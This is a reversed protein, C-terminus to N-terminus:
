DQLFRATVTLDTTSGLTVATRIILAGYITGATGAFPLAQTQAQVLSPSSTGLLTTDTMHIVGIVKPLDATAIAATTANTLTSSTPNANFLVLDLSPVVGSAFTATVAQVLGTGVTARGANTFTLVGGVDYGTSYAVATVAPTLQINNSFGGVNGTITATGSGGAIDVSLNGNADCPMPVAQGVILSTVGSYVCGGFSMTGLNVQVPISGTTTAKFNQQALAPSALGLAITSALILKRLM